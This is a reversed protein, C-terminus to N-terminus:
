TWTTLLYDTSFLSTSKREAIQNSVEETLEISAFEQELKSIRSDLKKREDKASSV